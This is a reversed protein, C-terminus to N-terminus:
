KIDARPPKSASTPSCPITQIRLWGEKDRWYPPELFDLTSLCFHSFSLSFPLFLFLSPFLSPHFRRLIIHKRAPWQKRLLWLSVAPPKTPTTYGSPVAASLSYSYRHKPLLGYFLFLFPLKDSRIGRRDIKWQQGSKM